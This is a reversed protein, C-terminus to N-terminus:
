AALGWAIGRSPTDGGNVRLLRGLVNPHTSDGNYYTNDAADAATQFITQGSDQILDTDILTLKGDFAQGAGTLTDTLFQAQRILARYSEVSTQVAASTAINVLERATWGRQLVGTSTTNLYAVVNTYHQAASLGGAGFDNRGIEFAVVNQGPLLAGTWSNAADRRTVLNSVQNGSTGVSLVRYNAPILGAGPEAVTMGSSIGSTVVGTGQTISDGELVLQNTIPVIGYNAVLAAQVADQQANTLTGSYIVMEYLDFQGWNGSTGPSFPYRGIEAGANSAVLTTAQALDDSARENIMIRTGGSATARSNCSMVQVQAGPILYPRNISAASGAVSHCRLWPASNTTVAATMQANGTNLATGGAVNGLGFINNTPVSGARHVRGVIFVCVARNSVGTLASAVNLFEAGEFRWLKRSLADTMARPGIGAGGETVAALGQLDTASVVRGGSETVTSVGPHWRSTPTVPLTALTPGSSGGGGGAAGRRGFPSPQPFLSALQVNRM